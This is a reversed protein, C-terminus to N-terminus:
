ASGVAFFYVGRPSERPKQKSQSNSPRAKAAHHRHKKTRPQGAELYAIREKTASLDARPLERLLERDEPM